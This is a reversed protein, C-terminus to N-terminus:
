KSEVKLSKDLANLVQPPIQLNLSMRDRKQCSVNHLNNQAEHNYFLLRLNHVFLKSEHFITPMLCVPEKIQKTVGTHEFKGSDGPIM